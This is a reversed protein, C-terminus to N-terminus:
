NTSGSQWEKIADILRSAGETNLDQWHFNPEEAELDGTLENLDGDSLYYKTALVLILDKQRFTM